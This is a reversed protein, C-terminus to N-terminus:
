VYSKCLLKKGIRLFFPNFFNWQDNYHLSASPQALIIENSVEQEYTTALLKLLQNKM